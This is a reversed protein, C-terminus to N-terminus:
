PITLDVLEFRKWGGRRDAIREVTLMACDGIATGFLERLKSETMEVELTLPKTPTTASIASADAAQKAAQRSSTAKSKGRADEGDSVDESEDMDEQPQPEANAAQKRSEARTADAIRRIGGRRKIERAVHDRPLDSALLARVACFYLSANKAGDPSHQCMYVFMHRLLEEPKQPDPKHKKDSWFRVGCFADVAAPDKRLEVEQICIDQIRHYLGDRYKKEADRQEVMVGYVAKLASIRKWPLPCSLM